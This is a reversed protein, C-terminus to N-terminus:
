KNPDFNDKYETTYLNNPTENDFYTNMIINFRGQKM